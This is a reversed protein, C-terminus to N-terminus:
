KWKEDDYGCISRIMIKFEDLSKCYYRGNYTRYDFGDEVQRFRETSGRVDLYKGDRILFCHILVVEEIEDDYENWIVPVDGKQYNNLVWEDCHGHLYDVSDNEHEEEWEELTLGDCWM